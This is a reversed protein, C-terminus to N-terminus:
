TLLYNQSIFATCYILAILNFTRYSITYSIQPNTEAPGSARVICLKLNILVIFRWNLSKQGSEPNPHTKAHIHFLPGTETAALLFRTQRYWFQHLSLVSPSWAAWQKHKKFVATSIQTTVQRCHTCQTSPMLEQHTKGELSVMERSSMYKHWMRQKSHTPPEDCRPSPTCTLFTQEVHPCYAQPVWPAGFQNHIPQSITTM